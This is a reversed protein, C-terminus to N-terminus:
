IWDREICSTMTQVSENAIIRMESWGTGRDTMNMIKYRVGRIECQMFDVQIEQHCAANAYTLSNKRMNGPRGNKTCVKCADSVRDIAKSLSKDLIGATKCINKMEDAQAYTFRYLKKSFALPTRKELM